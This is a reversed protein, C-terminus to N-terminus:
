YTFFTCGKINGEDDRVMNGPCLVDKRDKYYEKVITSVIYYTNENKEDSIFSKDPKNYNVKKITIIDTLVIDDTYEVEAREINGTKEFTKIVKGSEDCLHIDHPTLNIINLETNNSFKKM